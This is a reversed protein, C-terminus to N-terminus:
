ESTRKLILAWYSLGFAVVLGFAVLHLTSQLAVVQFQAPATTADLIATPGMQSFVIGSWTAGLISIGVTQGLTRTLSLLGSAVGLSERPASSMIDSNNPSQFIGAGIGVPLYRLVFGLASTTTQLTSILFYGVAMFGLGIMTLRRTGFRDSLSGSIPSFLGMMLPVVSLLLGTMQATFGKVNQLYYPMLINIGASAIFTLLGTILNITFLRNRFLNLDVMPQAVTMELRIFIVLMLVFLALLGYVPLYNFGYLEGLTLGITLASMSVMLSLAGGFDFRQKIGPITNPVFRIVMFTGILGVPINVFFIWRWSLHGLILGGMTPGAIIGMSVMLGTIGLAKGREQPPFVETVIATGLAMQMAAGVAQFIRAAIMVYINPSIGCFISGLTFIIFSATYIKKKGVMDAWRGFSLLLTTIVLLYAVVVWQVLSFNTHLEKELIPLGVNVISGDITALFIGMSVAAMVAWKNTSQLTTSQSTNM